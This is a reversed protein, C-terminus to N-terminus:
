NIRIWTQSRGLLPIGLYGRVELSKGGEKVTLNCSYTAGEDPDLIKGSIWKSPDEKKAQKFGWLIEMGTMPQNKKEDSCKSCVPNPNEGPKIIVKEVKGRLQGREDLWLTVISSVENTKDDITEWRGIPSMNDDAFIYTFFLFFSITFTILHKM